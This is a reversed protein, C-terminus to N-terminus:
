YVSGDRPRVVMGLSDMVNTASPVAEWLDQMGITGGAPVIDVDVNFKREIVALSFSTRAEQHVVPSTTNALATDSV